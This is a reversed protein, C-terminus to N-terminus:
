DESNFFGLLWSDLGEERHAHVGDDDTTYSLQVVRHKRMLTHLEREFDQQETSM